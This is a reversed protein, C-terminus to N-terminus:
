HMTEKQQQIASMQVSVVVRNRKHKTGVWTDISTCRKHVAELLGHNLSPSVKARKEGQKDGGGGM